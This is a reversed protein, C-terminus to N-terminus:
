LLKDINVRTFRSSLSLISVWGAFLANDGGRHSRDALLIPQTMQTFVITTVTKVLGVDAFSTSPDFDPHTVYGASTHAIGGSTLSLSGVVVRLGNQSRGMVSIKSIKRYCLFNIKM